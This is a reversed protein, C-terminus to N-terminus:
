SGRKAFDMVSLLWLRAVPNFNKKKQKKLPM